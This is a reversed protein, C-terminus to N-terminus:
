NEVPIGSRVLPDQSGASCGMICTWCSTVAVYYLSFPLLGGIAGTTPPLPTERHARLTKGVEQAKGAPLAGPRPGCGLKGAMQTSGFTPGPSSPQSSPLWSEKWSQGGLQLESSM